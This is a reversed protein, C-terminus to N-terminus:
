DAPLIVDLFSQETSGEAKALIECGTAESLSKIKILPTEGICGEIGEKINGGHLVITNAYETLAKKLKEPDKVDSLQLLNKKRDEACEQNHGSRSKSVFEHSKWASTM